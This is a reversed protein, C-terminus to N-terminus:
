SRRIDYCTITSSNAPHCLDQCHHPEYLRGAGVHGFRERKGPLTVWSVSHRSAVKGGGGSGGVLHGGPLDVQWSPWHSHVSPRVSQLLVLGVTPGSTQTTLRNAQLRQLSVSTRTTSVGASADPRLGQHPQNSNQTKSSTKGQELCHQRRTAGQKHAVGASCM